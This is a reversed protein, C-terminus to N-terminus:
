IGNLTHGARKGELCRTSTLSSLPTLTLQRSKKFTSRHEICHLAVVDYKALTAAIQADNGWCSKFDIYTHPGAATILRQAGNSEHYPAKPASAAPSIALAAVLLVIVSLFLAKQLRKKSERV